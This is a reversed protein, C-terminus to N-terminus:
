GAGHLNQIKDKIKVVIKASHLLSSAATGSHGVTILKDYLLSSSRYLGSRENSGRM